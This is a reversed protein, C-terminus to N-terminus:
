AGEKRTYQISVLRKILDERQMKDGVRLSIHLDYYEKPGGLGYICSVSAVVITDDRELCSNIAASRMMEIEMNMVADSVSDILCALVYYNADAM